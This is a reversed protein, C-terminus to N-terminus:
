ISYTCVDVPGESNPSYTWADVLKEATLLTWVHVPGHASDASYLSPSWAGNLCETSNDWIVNTHAM